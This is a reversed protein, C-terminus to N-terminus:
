VNAEEYFFKVERGFTDRDPKRQDGAQDFAVFLGPPITTMKFRSKLDVSSLVPIGVLLDNEQEDAIDFIWTEMRSNWRFRLTYVVGEIEQRFQYSPIDARVPLELIAM